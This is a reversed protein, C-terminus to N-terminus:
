NKTRLQTQTNKLQKATNIVIHFLSTSVIIGCMILIQLSQDLIHVSMYQRFQVPRGCGTGCTVWWPVNPKM